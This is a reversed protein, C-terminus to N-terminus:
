ADETHTKKKFALPEAITPDIDVPIDKLEEPLTGDRRSSFTIVSNEPNIDDLGVDENVDRPLPETFQPLGKNHFTHYPGNFIVLNKKIIDKRLSNKPLMGLIADVLIREPNKELV